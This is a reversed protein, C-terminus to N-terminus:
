KIAMRRFSSCIMSVEAIANTIDDWGWIRIISFRTYLRLGVVFSSALALSISISVLTTAQSEGDLAPNPSIPMAMAIKKRDHLQLCPRLSRFPTISSIYIPRLLPRRTARLGAKGPGGQASTRFKPPFTGLM